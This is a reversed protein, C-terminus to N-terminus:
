APWPNSLLEAPTPPQPLSWVRWRGDPYKGDLRYFGDETSLGDGWFENGWRKVHLGCHSRKGNVHEIWVSEDDPLALAEDLTLVRNEM